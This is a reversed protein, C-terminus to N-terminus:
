EYWQRDGTAFHAILPFMRGTTECGIAESHGDVFVTNMKESHHYSVSAHDPYASKPHSFHNYNRCYPSSYTSAGYGDMMIACSSPKTFMNTKRPDAPSGSVGENIAYSGLYEPWGSNYEGWCKEASPCQWVTNKVNDFSSFFTNGYYPENNIYKNIVSQFTREAGGVNTNQVMMYGDYADNYMQSWTGITKLNSLCSATRGRERASNLAPLLIAALIAIIAIVVLLEILTFCSHKVGGHHIVNKM